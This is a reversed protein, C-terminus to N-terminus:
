GNAVENTLDLKMYLVEFPLHTSNQSRVIQYGHKQYWERLRTNAKIIGIDIQKIHENGAIERAKDLIYKGYQNGRESSIIAVKELTVQAEKQYVLEFFGIMEKELYVGYLRNNKELDMRLHKTQTFAGNTPCNDITLNFEKAVTAFSDRIVRAAAELDNQELLRVTLRKQFLPDSALLVKEAM